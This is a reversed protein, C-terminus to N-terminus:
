RLASSTLSDVSACVITTVVATILASGLAGLIGPNTTGMLALATRALWTGALLYVVVFFRADAFLLDRSRAATFAITLLVLANTGPNELAMAADLVGLGFGLAAAHGARLRLSALLLGGVLLDPAAIFSTLSPRFLFHILLLVTVGFTALVADERQLDSAGRNM